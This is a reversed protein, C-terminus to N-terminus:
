EFARTGKCDPYKLCGWFQKGAGKGKRATRLVMAQDCKPCKPGNAQATSKRGREAVREAALRETYGGDNIFERELSAIQRDLLYNAQHVASDDSDLWKKYAFSQDQSQRSGVARVEKAEPDTRDALDTRHNKWSAINYVM